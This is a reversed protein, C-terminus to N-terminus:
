ILKLFIDIKEEAEEKSKNKERHSEIESILPRLYKQEDPFIKACLRVNHSIAEVM